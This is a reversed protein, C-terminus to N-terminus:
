GNRSAGRVAIEPDDDVDGAARPRGGGARRAFAQARVAARAAGPAPLAGGRRRRRRGARRGRNAARAGGRGRGPRDLRQDDGRPPGSSTYRFPAGNCMRLDEVGRISLFAITVLEREPVFITSIAGSM